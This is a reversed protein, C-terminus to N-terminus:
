LCKTTMLQVVFGFCYFGNITVKCMFMATSEVAAVFCLVCRLNPYDFSHNLFSVWFVCM